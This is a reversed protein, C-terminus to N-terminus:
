YKNIIINMMKYWERSLSATRGAPRPEVALSTRGDSPGCDSGALLIFRADLKVRILIAPQTGPPPLGAMFSPQTAASQFRIDRIQWDQGEDHSRFTM